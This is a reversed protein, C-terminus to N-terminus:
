PTWRDLLWVIAAEASDFRNPGYHNTSYHIVAGGVNRSHIYYARDAGFLFRDSYSVWYYKGEYYCPFPGSEAPSEEQLQMDPETAAWRVCEAQSELGNELLYDVLVIPARKEAVWVAILSRLTADVAYLDAATTVTTVTEAM